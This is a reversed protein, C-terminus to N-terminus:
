LSKNKLKNINALTKQIVSLACAFLNVSKKKKKKQILPILSLYVCIQVKYPTQTFM